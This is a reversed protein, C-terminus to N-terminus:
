EVLRLTSPIDTVHPIALLARQLDGSAFGRAPEVTLLNALGALGFTREGSASFYALGRMPSPHVGSVTVKTAVTRMGGPAAQAHLLTVTAGVSARLDAAAKRSLVIGGGLSGADLSPTWAPMAPLVEAAIDVSAGDPAPGAHDVAKVVTGGVQFWRCVDDLDIRTGASGPRADVVPASPESM